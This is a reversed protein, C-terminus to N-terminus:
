SIIKTTEQPTAYKAMDAIYADNINKQVAHVFNFDRKNVYELVAQPMGGVVLFTKYLDLAIDHLSLPSITKYSECILEALTLNGTAWMFEEFDLPYMIHMDIKGVPFSYQQRNMAVGM